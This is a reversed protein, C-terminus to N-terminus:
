DEIDLMYLTDSHGLATRIAGVAITAVETPSGRRPNMFTYFGMDGDSYGGAHAGRVHKDFRKDVKRGNAISILVGEVGRSRMLGFDVNDGQHTSVDVVPTFEM